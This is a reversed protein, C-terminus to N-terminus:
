ASRAADVQRARLAINEKMLAFVQRSRAALLRDTRSRRDDDDHLLALEPALHVALPTTGRYSFRLLGDEQFYRADCPTVRGKWRRSYLAHNPEDRSTRGESVSELHVLVSAPCYHIERGLKGLRLCFDVDEYGNVFGTDFGGAAEFTSRAVLLCAGTVMPFARAKNVAPHDSPFGVYIHKPELDADIVMGAHQVTGDPYLLKSGVAAAEPHAEAHAVLAELWGDLPITDNNLFVLYRGTAGAAGDNCAHSFGLNAEHSVVRIAEGYSRLLSPTSDPSADDVVVIERDFGQPPAALLRDLCQRTVEALGYVPVIISCLPM